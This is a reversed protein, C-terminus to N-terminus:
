WKVMKLYRRRSWVELCWRTPGQRGARREPDRVHPLHIYVASSRRYRAARLCGPDDKRREKAERGEQTDRTDGGTQREHTEEREAQKGTEHM